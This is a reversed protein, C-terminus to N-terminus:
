MCELLSKILIHASKRSALLKRSPNFLTVIGLQYVCLLASITQLLPRYWNEEESQQPM